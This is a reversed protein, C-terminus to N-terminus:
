GVFLKATLGNITFSARVTTKTRANQTIMPIAEAIYPAYPTNVQMVM